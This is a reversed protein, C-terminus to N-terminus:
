IFVGNNLIKFVDKGYIYKGHEVINNLNINNDVKLYYKNNYFKISDYNSILDYDYTEFLVDENLYVIVRLDINNSFEIEELKYIDIFLGVYKNVYVKVKYFGSLNLKYRLKIIYKKVIDVIDDKNNYDLNNYFLKNIFISCGGDSFLEIKM